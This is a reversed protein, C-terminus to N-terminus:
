NEAFLGQFQLKPFDVVKNEGRGATGMANRQGPISPAELRHLLIYFSPLRVPV